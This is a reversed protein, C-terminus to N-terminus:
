TITVDHLRGREATYLHNHLTGASPKPRSFQRSLRRSLPARLSSQALTVSDVGEIGDVSLVVRSPARIVGVDRCGSLSSLVQM